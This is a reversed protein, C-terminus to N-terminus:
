QIINGEADIRITKVPRAAPATNPQPAPTAPDAINGVGPVGVTPSDPEPILPQGRLQRLANMSRIMYRNVLDIKENFRAKDTTWSQPSGFMEIARTVDANSLDRGDQGAIASAAQYIYIGALTELEGGEKSFILNIADPSLVQKGSGIQRNVENVIEGEIKQKATQADPAGAVLGWMNAGLTIGGRAADLVKGSYGFLRPDAKAAVDKLMQQTTNFRAFTIEAKDLATNAAPSSLVGGSGTDQINGIVDARDPPPLPNGQADLGRSYSEDTVLYNGNKTRLVRTQGVNEDAGLVNRQEDETLNYFEDDLLGGKVEAESRIPETGPETLHSRPVYAPQGNRMAAQPETYWKEKDFGFKDRDLDEGAINHRRTEGLTAGHQREQRSQDSAFGRPTSSEAQGAGLMFDSVRPDGRAAADMRALDAAEQPNRESAWLMAQGVPTSAAAAGGSESIVKGYNLTEANKRQLAELQARKLDGSVSDGFLALGLKSISDAVPSTGRFANIIRPM